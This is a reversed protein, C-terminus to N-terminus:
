LDVTFLSPVTVAGGETITSKLEEWLFNAVFWDLAGTVSVLCSASQLHRPFDSEPFGLSLLQALAFVRALDVSPDVLPGREWWYLNRLRMATDVVFAESPALSFRDFELSGWADRLFLILGYSRAGLSTPDEHHQTEACAEALGYGAALDREAPPRLPIGIFRLADFLSRRSRSPMRQVAHIYELTSTPRNTRPRMLPMPADDVRRPSDM